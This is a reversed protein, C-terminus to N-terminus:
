YKAECARKITDGQVRIAPLDGIKLINQSTGTLIFETKMVNLGLNNAKLWDIIHKIDPIFYRTIDEFTTVGNSSTTDDAYMTIHVNEICLPLDNM